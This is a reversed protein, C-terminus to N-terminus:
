QALNMRRLMEQFRPDGHLPDFIPDVKLATSITRRKLAEQLYQIAKEKEDLGTYAVAMMMPDAKGKGYLEELKTMALQARAPRGCRGSAYALLEYPVATQDPKVLTEANAVAEACMGNGIYASDILHARGFTPEMELVSRFQQIAQAYQRSYLLIAGRDTEIILSLPDLARAREIEVQAEAFRGTLALIEAYWHHATAYNPDLEIARRYESEVLKWDWDYNQVVVALSAHGEALNPDLEISRLAAARAKPIAEEPSMVMYEDMLAYADALGAYARAYTPDKDVAQQFYEASRRLGEPSRKNWFFRGKLYLDFAEYSVPAAQARSIAGKTEEGGISSLIEGAIEQAIQGQLELVNSLERDYQKSWVHTQDASRILEASVRVRDADRRVSGELLYQVGLARAVQEPQEGGQRFRGVSTRSIVGLREPNARGLQAIMEETLGESFYDQTSDGTLNEFPFVAVMQREAALPRLTQLRRWHLYGFVLAVAALCVGLGVAWRWFAASRVEARPQVDVRVPAESLRVAGAVEGAWVGGQCELEVTVIMRYGLKPLTEIYRPASASDNLAARLEKISTNLGHEFDVFTEEPWLLKQFEERTVVDGAREALIRLVQLPQPRLKLKSGQKYLERTRLRLEYPGFRYFKAQEAM